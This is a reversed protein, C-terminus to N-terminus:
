GRSHVQIASTKLIDVPLEQSILLKNLTNTTSLTGLISDVLILLDLDFHQELQRIEAMQTFEALDFEEIRSYLLKHLEVLRILKEFRNEIFKFCLREACIRNKVGEEGETTSM